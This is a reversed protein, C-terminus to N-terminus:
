QKSGLALAINVMSLQNLWGAVERPSRTSADSLWWVIAGVGAHAVYSLCLDLPVSDLQIHAEASPLISRFRQEIYHQIRQTFAPDGRKGLMVRYFDAHEQIHELMNVLGIPAEDAAQGGPQAAPPTEQPATLTYVENMYQELLDYKDLYHRYFTARNVMARAAIDQVTVDAFGKAITLEILAQQLLKRTRRVRLDEAQKPNQTM